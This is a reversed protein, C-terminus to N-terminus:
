EESPFRDRAGAFQPTRLAHIVDFLMLFGGQVLVASGHGRRAAHHSRVLMAGAALYLLDLGANLWLLRRLSVAHALETASTATMQKREANAQGAYAIAADVAGWAANQSGFARWFDSRSRVRLLMGLVLAPIAWALLRHTLRRNFSWILVTEHQYAPMSTVKVESTM